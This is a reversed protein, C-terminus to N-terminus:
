FLFSYMELLLSCFTNLVFRVIIILYIVICAISVYLLYYQFLVISSIFDTFEENYQGKIQCRVQTDNKMLYINHYLQPNMYIFHILICVSNFAYPFIECQASISPFNQANCQMKKRWCEVDHVPIRSKVSKLKVLIITTKSM